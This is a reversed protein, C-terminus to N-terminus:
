GISKSDWFSLDQVVDRESGNTDTCTTQFPLPMTPLGVVVLNTIAGGRKLISVDGCRGGRFVKDRVNGGPKPKFNSNLKFNDPTRSKVLITSMRSVSETM